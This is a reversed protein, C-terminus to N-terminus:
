ARTHQCAFGSPRSRASSLRWLAQARGDRRPGTHLPKDDAQLNRGGQLGEKRLPGMRWVERAPAHHDAFSGQQLLHAGRPGHRAQRSPRQAGEGATASVRIAPGGTIREIRSELKDLTAFVEDDTPRDAFDGGSYLYRVEGSQDVVLLSPVAVGAEDDWLGYLRTLEGEPDSLLPFPLQLKGVMKANNSPPDVSIGAVQVGREEFEEVGRAYSALQGNCYPSWDGSYFVLMVPGLELQGSLSWPYDQQDPLEFYTVKQGVDLAALRHEETRKEGEPHSYLM